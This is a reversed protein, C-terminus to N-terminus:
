IESYKQLIHLNTKPHIEFVTLYPLMELMSDASCCFLGEKHLVTVKM